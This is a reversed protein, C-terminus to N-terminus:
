SCAFRRVDVLDASKATGLKGSLRGQRNLLDHGSCGLIACSGM